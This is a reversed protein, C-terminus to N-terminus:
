DNNNNIAWHILQYCEKCIKRENTHECAYVSDTNAGCRYCVILSKVTYTSASLNHSKAPFLTDPNKNVIIWYLHGFPIQRPV